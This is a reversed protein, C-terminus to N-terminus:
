TSRLSKPNQKSPLSLPFPMDGRFSLGLVSPKEAIDILVIGAGSSTKYVSIRHSLKNLFFFLFEVTFLFFIAFSGFSMEDYIKTKEWALGFEGNIDVTACM